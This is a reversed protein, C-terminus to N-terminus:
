EKVFVSDRENKNAQCVRLHDIVNDSILKQLTKINKLIFVLLKVALKIFNDIDLKSSMVASVIELFTDKSIGMGPLMKAVHVIM